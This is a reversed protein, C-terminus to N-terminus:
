KALIKDCEKHLIERCEGCPLNDDLPLCGIRIRKLEDVGLDIVGFMRKIQHYKGEDLVIEAISPCSSIVKVSVARCSEGSALTVGSELKKIGEQTLEGDLTVLYTKEVHSSPALMRHAFDGDNTILVFGTTDKDLRGAPFLDSRKLNQPVLDIVTKNLKDDTSSVVGKPKNLMIYIFPKFEVAEDRLFVTDSDTDVQESPSKVVRDNIRIGGGKIVAKISKRSILEQMSFFRDIRMKPM